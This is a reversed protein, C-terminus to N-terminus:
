IITIYMGLIRFSCCTSVVLVKEQSHTMDNSWHRKCHHFQHLRAVCSTTNYFNHHVNLYFMYLFVTIQCCLASSTEFALISTEQFFKLKLSAWFSGLIILFVELINLKTKWAINLLLRFPQVILSLFQFWCKRWEVDGKM